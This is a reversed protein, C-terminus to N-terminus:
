LLSHAIIIIPNKLTANLVAQAFDTFCNEKFQKSNELSWFFDTLYDKDKGQDKHNFSEKRRWGMREETIREM